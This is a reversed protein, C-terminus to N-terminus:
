YHASFRRIRVRFYAPGMYVVPDGVDRARAVPDPWRTVPKTELILHNLLAVRTPDVTPDTTKVRFRYPLGGYQWWEEVTVAGFLNNVLKQVSMPTGLHANDYNASMIMARKQDLPLSRDYGPPQFEVGLEDVLDNPLTAIAPKILLNPLQNIFNQYPVQFAQMLALFRPSNSVVGPGFQGAVDFTDLTDNAM